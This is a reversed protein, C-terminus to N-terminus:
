HMDLKERRIDCQSFEGLLCGLGMVSGLDLHM